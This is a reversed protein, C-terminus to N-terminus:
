TPLRRGSTKIGTLRPLIRAIAGYALATAPAEANQLPWMYGSTRKLTTNGKVGNREKRVGVLTESARARAWQHTVPSNDSVRLCEVELELEM